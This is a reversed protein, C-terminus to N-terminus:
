EDFSGPSSEFTSVAKTTMVAGHFQRSIVTLIIVHIPTSTLGPCHARHYNLHVSALQHMQAGIARNVPYYDTYAAAVFGLGLDQNMAVKARAIRRERGSIFINCM